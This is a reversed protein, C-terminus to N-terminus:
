SSGAYLLSSVIEHKFSSQSNAQSVAYTFLLPLVFQGQGSKETQVDGLATHGPQLDTQIEDGM